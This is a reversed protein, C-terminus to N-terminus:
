TVERRGLLALNNTLLLKPNFQMTPTNYHTTDAVRTGPETSPIYFLTLSTRIILLSKNLSIKCSQVFMFFYLSLVSMLLSTNLLAHPMLYIYLLTFSPLISAPIHKPLYQMFPRACLFIFFPCVSIPIDKPTCTVNFIYLSTYRFPSYFCTHTIHGSLCM